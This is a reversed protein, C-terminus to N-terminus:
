QSPDGNSEQPGETDIELPARFYPNDKVPDRPVESVKKTPDRYVPVEPPGWYLVV